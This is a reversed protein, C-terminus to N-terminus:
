FYVSVCHRPKCLSCGTSHPWRLWLLNFAFIISVYLYFWQWWRRDGLHIDVTSMSWPDDVFILKWTVLHDACKMKFSRINANFKFDIFYVGVCSCLWFLEFLSDKHIEFIVMSHFQSTHFPAVPSPHFDLENLSNYFFQAISKIRKVDCVLQFDENIM